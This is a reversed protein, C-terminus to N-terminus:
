KAELKAKLRQNGQEPDTPMASKIVKAVLEWVSQSRDHEKVESFLAPTHSWDDPAIWSEYDSHSGGAVNAIVMEGIKRKREEIGFPVLEVTIRLM